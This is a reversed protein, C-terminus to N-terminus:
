IIFYSTLRAFVFYSGAFPLLTFKIFERALEDKEEQKYLDPKNFFINANKYKESEGSLVSGM